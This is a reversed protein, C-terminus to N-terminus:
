RTEKILSEIKNLEDITNEHRWGDVYKLMMKTLKAQLARDSMTKIMCGTDRFPHLEVALKQIRKEITVV